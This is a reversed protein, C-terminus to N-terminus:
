KNGSCKGGFEGCNCGCGKGLKKDHIIKNIIGAVSLALIILVIVTGM